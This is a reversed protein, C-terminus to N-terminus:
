LIIFSHWVQVEDISKHDFNQPSETVHEFLQILDDHNEKIAGM